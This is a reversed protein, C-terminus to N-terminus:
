LFLVRCPHQSKFRMCAHMCGLTTAWNLVRSFEELLDWTGYFENICLFGGLRRTAEHVEDKRLTHQIGGGGARGASRDRAAARM